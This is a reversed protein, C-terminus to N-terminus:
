FCVFLCVEKAEGERLRRSHPLSSYTQSSREQERGAEEERREAQKETEKRTEHNGRSQM